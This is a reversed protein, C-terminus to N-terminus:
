VCLERIIQQHPCTHGLYWNPDHAIHAVYLEAGDLFRDRCEASCFAYTVGYYTYEIILQNPKLRMGCIPDRRFQEDNAHIKM